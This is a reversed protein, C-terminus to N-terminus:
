WFRATLWANRNRGKTNYRCGASRRRGSEFEPIACDLISRGELYRLAIEHNHPPVMRLIRKAMEGSRMEAEVVILVPDEV